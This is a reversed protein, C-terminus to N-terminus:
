NSIIENVGGIAGSFLKTSRRSFNGAFDVLVGASAQFFEHSSCHPAIVEPKGIMKLLYDRPEYVGTYSIELSCM